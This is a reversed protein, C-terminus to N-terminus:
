EEQGGGTIMSLPLYNAPVIIVDGEPVEEYDCAVRKENLKLWWATEMRKWVANRDEQIADIRDRDFDLKLNSGFLPTLWNNLEDRLWSSLPIINDMYLARRAEQYNSYTKNESDGILEPAVNFVACIKRSNTKDSNLWDADKPTIAFSKWDLGAELLLPKGANEYGSIKEEIERKLREHQEDTLAGQAVMAGPPRADNQLLKLNWSMGMNYIDIGRSAARLPSLGYVDDLPNFTKLHLVDAALWNEKTEGTRYEWAVIEKSIKNQLATMRDPRISYLERPNKIEQGEAGPGVKKIYSNGSLLLYAVVKELFRSKGEGPNPRELIKRLPHNEELETIREKKSGPMKYALWPIGAVNRAILNICAYATMCNKYGAETLGIYNDKTWVPQAGQWLLALLNGGQKKEIARKIELGLIRM